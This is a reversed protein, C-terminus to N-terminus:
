RNILFRALIRLYYTVLFAYKSINVNSNKLELFTNLPSHRDTLRFRLTSEYLHIFSSSRIKKENLILHFTFPILNPIIPYFEENTFIYIEKNDRINSLVETFLKPGVLGWIAQQHDELRQYATDLLTKLIWHEKISYFIANNIQRCRVDEFGAIFSVSSFSQNLRKNCFVDTDVWWGGKKYILELRFVDAFLAISNGVFKSNQLYRMSDNFNMIENADYIKIEPKLNENRTPTYTYFHVEYENQVFSNLCAVHLENLVGHYFTQVINADIM